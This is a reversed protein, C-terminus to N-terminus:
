RYGSGGYGGSGGSGGPGGRGGTRGGGRGGGHAGFLLGSARPVRAGNRAYGTSRPSYEMYLDPRFNVYLGRRENINYPQSSSFSIMVILNNM